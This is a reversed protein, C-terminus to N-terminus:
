NGNKQVKRWRPFQRPGGARDFLLRSLAASFKSKTKKFDEEIGTLRKVLIIPFALFAFLYQELQGTYYNSFLYVLLFILTAPAGDWLFTTILLVAAAYPFFTSNLALTAGLITAVGRGGFFKLYISWNHGAVAALGAFAQLWLSFGFQQAIFVVTWGKAVDLIGTLIGQWKGAYHFVNTAGIQERGVLRIDIGKSYKSILFGFPVSGILYSLIIWLFAFHEPM